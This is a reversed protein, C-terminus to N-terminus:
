VDESYGCTPCEFWEVQELQNYVPDYESNDDSLEYDFNYLLDGGCDPCKPFDAFDNNIRDIPESM